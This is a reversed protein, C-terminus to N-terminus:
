QVNEESWDIHQGCNPCYKYDDYDVEYRTGCHPCKWEDWVFTGDPAYGDGDYTPRKTKQREVAKRVEELTGLKKYGRYDTYLDKYRQCHSLPVSTCFGGVKLCNGNEHRYTCEDMLRDTRALNRKENDKYIQLEQMASIAIRAMDAQKTHDCRYYYNCEECVEEKAMVKMCHIAEHYDM